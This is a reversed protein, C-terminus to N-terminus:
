SHTAKKNELIYEEFVQLHKAFSKKGFGLRLIDDSLDFVKGPMVLLGKQKILDDVWKQASGKIKFLTIPGAQPKIWEFFDLHREYFAELLRFNELLIQRNRALVQDKARLAIIALIESTSSNCCTTYLKFSSVKEIFSKEQSAVWGIRLGALGYTKTMANISIGKRYADAIQPLRKSEDLEFYRYLEDVVIFADVSKAIEIVQKFTSIDLLAGTPNHPFNMVIAKTNSKISARLKDLDLVGDDLSVTSVDAGIMEPVTKLSQYAPTLVVVHDQKSILANLTCFIAEEAGGFVVIGEEGVQYQKAIEKRLLPKGKSETYGLHLDNWLHLCEADALSLIESLQFTEADSTCLLNPVSFEYKKWFEEIKFPPWM